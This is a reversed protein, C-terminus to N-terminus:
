KDGKDDVTGRAAKDRKALEKLGPRQKPKGRDLQEQERRQREALREESIRTADEQIWAEARLVLLTLTDTNTPTLSVRALDGRTHVPIYPVIRDGMRGIQISYKPWYHNSKQVSVCLGTSEDHCLHVPAWTPKPSENSQNVM